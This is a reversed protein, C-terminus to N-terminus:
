FIIGLTILVIILCSDDVDQFSNQANMAFLGTVYAGFGVLCSVIYICSHLLLLENEKTSLRLKMLDSANSLQNQMRKVTAEVASFEIYLVELMDEVPEHQALLEKALPYRSRLHPHRALFSLNMLAMQEEDELPAGLLKLSCMVRTRLQILLNTLRAIQEEARLPLLVWGGGSGMLRLLDTLELQASEALRNEEHCQMGLLTELVTLEFAQHVQERNM